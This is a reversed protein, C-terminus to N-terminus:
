NRYKLQEIQDEFQKKWQTIDFFGNFATLGFVTRKLMSLKEVKPIDKLKM